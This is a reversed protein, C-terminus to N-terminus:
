YNILRYFDFNESKLWEVFWSKDTNRIKEIAEFMNNFSTKDSQTRTNDIM